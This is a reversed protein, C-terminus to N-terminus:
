EQHWLYVIFKKRDPDAQQRLGVKGYIAKYRRRHGYLNAMAANLEEQTALNWELHPSLGTEITTKALKIVQELVQRYKGARMRPPLTVPEKVLTIGQPLEMKTAAVKVMTHETYM